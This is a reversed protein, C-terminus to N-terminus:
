ESPRAPRRNRGPRAARSQAGLVQPAVTRPVYPVGSAQVRVAYTCYHALPAGPPLSGQAEPLYLVYSSPVGLGYTCDQNPHPNPNPSALTLTLTRTLM